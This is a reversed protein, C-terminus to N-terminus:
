SEGLLKELEEVTRPTSGKEKLLNKQELMRGIRFIIPSKLNAKQCLDDQSFIAPPTGDATLEGQSFVLVRDAWRYAFDVDHTSILLTKGRQSLLQLTEELQQANAPDLSATPEDFLFVDPDMAIIDAISVRKKEGGSLYHPPRDEFGELNMFAAARRVREKVEEPPLKLNMPGFSIEARVSPAIIQNDADQFIIGVGKRLENLSKRTIVAGKYSVTGTQPTLVGNMNLFLTSKGAGNPGLVAIREGAHIDLSVHSLAAKEGYYSFSVDHLSLVPKEKMQDDM